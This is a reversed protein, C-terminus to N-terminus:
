GTLKRIIIVFKLLQNHPLKFGAIHFGSLNTWRNIYTSMKNTSLTSLTLATFDYLLILNMLGKRLDATIFDISHIKM